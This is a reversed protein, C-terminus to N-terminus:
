RAGQMRCRWPGYEGEAEKASWQKVRHRELVLAEPNNTRGHDEYRALLGTLGEVVEYRFQFRM